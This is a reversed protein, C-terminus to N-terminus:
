ENDNESEDEERINNYLSANIGQKMLAAYLDLPLAQGCSQYSEAEEILRERSAYDPENTM